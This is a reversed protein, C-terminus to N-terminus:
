LQVKIDVAALTDATSARNLMADNLNGFIDQLSFLVFLSYLWVLITQTPGKIVTRRYRTHKGESLKRNSWNWKNTQVFRAALSFVCARLYSSKLGALTRAFLQTVVLITRTETSSTLNIQCPKVYQAVILSM